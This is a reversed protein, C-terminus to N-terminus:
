VSNVNCAHFCGSVNMHLSGGGVNRLQPFPRREIRLECRSISVESNPHLVSYMDSGVYYMPPSTTGFAVSHPGRPSAFLISPGFRRPSPAHM